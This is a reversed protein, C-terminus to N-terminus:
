SAGVSEATLSARSRGAAEAALVVHREDPNAKIYDLVEAVSHAGPDFGAGADAPGAVFGPMSASGVIVSTTADGFEISPKRSCELKLTDKLDEEAAGGFTGSTLFVRGIARPPQGANLGLLFYAELTDNEFLFKSLGTSVHVDQYTKANLTYSSQSVVPTKKGPGCFTPETTRQTINPSSTVNGDRIQCRWAEAGVYDAIVATAATAGGPAQWTDLYGVAETDVLALAFEGDNVQILNAEPM